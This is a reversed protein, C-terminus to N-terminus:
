SVLVQDIGKDAKRIEEATDLNGLTGAIDALSIIINGIARIGRVTSEKVTFCSGKFESVQTRLDRLFSNIASLARAAEGLMERTKTDFDHNESFENMMVALSNISDVTQDHSATCVRSSPNVPSIRTLLPDLARFISAVQKVVEAEGTLKTLTKVLSFLTNIDGEAAEVLRSGEQIAQIAEEMNNLCVADENFVRSIARSTRPDQSLGRLTTILSDAQRRTQLGLGSGRNDPNIGPQRSFSDFLSIIFSSTAKSAINSAKQYKDNLRYISDFFTSLFSRVDDPRVNVPTVPSSLSTGPPGSYQPVPSASLLPFLGVVILLKM